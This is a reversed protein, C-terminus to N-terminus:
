GNNKDGLKKALLGVRLGFLVSDINVRKKFCDFDIRRELDNILFDIWDAEWWKDFDLISRNKLTLKLETSIRFIKVFDPNKGLYFLSFEPSEFVREGKFDVSIEMKIRKTEIIFKEDLSRSFQFDKPFIIRPNYSIDGNSNQEFISTNKIKRVFKEAVINGRLTSLIDDNGYKYFDINSQADKFNKLSDSIEILIQLEAADKILKLPFDDEKEEASVKRELQKVFAKSVVVDTASRDIDAGQWDRLLDVEGKFFISMLRFINQPYDYLVMKIFSNKNSTEVAIVSYIKKIESKSSFIRFWIWIFSVFFILVILIKQNGEDIYKLIFTSLINVAVGFVIAVFIAEIILVRNNLFKLILKNM